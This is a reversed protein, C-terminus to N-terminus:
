RDLWAKFEAVRERSVILDQGEFNKIILKLRSNSFTIVDSFSDLHVIYKRNIRFFIQPDILEELHDLPFDLIYKQGKVTQVYTAKEQSYFVLSDATMVSKLHDGVKVVFREKYKVSQQKLLQLLENTDTVPKASNSKFKILAKGLENKGIPKLLYDVSNVKFAQIAYQDYATTFIIPCEVKTQEFIEFSKGDALQIDFFALDPQENENFWKLASKISDVKGVIEIKPDIEYLVQKLREAALHEDEIILAKM